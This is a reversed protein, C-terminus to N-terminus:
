INNGGLTKQDHQHQDMIVASERRNPPADPGKVGMHDGEEQTPFWTEGLTYLPLEDM